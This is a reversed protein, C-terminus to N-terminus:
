RLRHRVLVVLQGFGIGSVLLLVAAGSTAWFVSESRYIGAALLFMAAVTVRTPREGVTLIGVEDLGTAAARARTYELLGLAFGAAVCVWAPAGVLWLAVLYLADSIRDVLSDLVSGWRTARDSLVAVAGDLSDFVGSIGVVVAAAIVWWGGLWCLVVVFASVVLGLATVSDPSLGVQALPRALMYVMSLWPGVFRSSRPDFGGHLEQWRTLYEQRSPLTRAM